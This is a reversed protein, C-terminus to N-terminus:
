ESGSVWETKVTALLLKPINRQACPCNEGAARCGMTDFLKELSWTLAQFIFNEKEM